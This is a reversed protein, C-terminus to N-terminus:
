AAVAGYQKVLIKTAAENARAGTGFTVFHTRDTYTDGHHNTVNTKVFTHAQLAGYVTGRRGTLDSGPAYDRGYQLDALASRQQPTWDAWDTPVTKTGFICRKFYRDSDKATMPIKSWARWQSILSDFSNTSELLERVARESDKSEIGRTHRHKVKNRSRSFSANIANACAINLAIRAFTRSLTGDFADALLIYRDIDDGPIVELSDGAIKCVAYFMKGGREARMRTVELDGSDVLPALGALSKVPQVYTFDRGMVSLQTVEGGDHKSYVLKKSPVPEHGCGIRATLPADHITWPFARKLTDAFSLGASAKMDEAGMPDAEWPARIGRTEFTEIRDRNVTPPAKPAALKSFTRTRM